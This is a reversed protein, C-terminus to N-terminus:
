RSDGFTARSDVRTEQAHQLTEYGYHGEPLPSAISIGSREATRVSSASAAM